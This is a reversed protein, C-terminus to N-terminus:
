INYMSLGTTNELSYEVILLVRDSRLYFNIDLTYFEKIFRMWPEWAHEGAAEDVVGDRRRFITRSRRTPIGPGFNSPRIKPLSGMMKQFQYDRAMHELASLNRHFIGVKWAPLCFQLIARWVDEPLMDLM